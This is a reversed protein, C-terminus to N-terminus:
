VRDQGREEPRRPNQKRSAESSREGIKEVLKGPLAMAALRILSSRFFVRLALYKRDERDVLDGHSVFLRKGSPLAISTESAHVRLAVSGRFRHAFADRLHFDHNGEIYEVRAGLKMKEELLRFFEEYRRLLVPQRGV